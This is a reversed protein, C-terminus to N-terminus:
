LNFINARDKESAAIELIAGALTEALRIMDEVELYENPGHELSPREQPVPGFAVSNKFARAYTAGSLCVFQAPKEFNEEYVRALAQLFPGNEDVEHARQAHLVDTKVGRAAFAERVTSEIEEGRMSVPYRIDLTAAIEEGDWEIMGLNVSLSGSKEDSGAIGLRGGDIEGGVLEGLAYVFKEAAGPAMPLVSLFQILYSLANVGKEPHAGHAAVGSVEVNVAGDEGKVAFSAPLGEGYVEAFSRVTELPARLTCSAKNPVINPRSGAGIATIAVGEPFPLARASLRLQLLGKERSVIPFCGDPSLVYDPEPYHAKYYDIDEWGSEEDCGFIVKVEKNLNICSSKVAHLAYLAAVAPGKDDVAGRGYIRGDRVEMAFPDSQWGEGAPVVDLHCLIALTEDGSGYSACGMHGFLNVSELDLQEAEDLMVMLAHFVERGYPMNLQSAGKVSPIAILRSLTELMQDKYKRM